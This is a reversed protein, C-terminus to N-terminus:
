LLTQVKALALIMPTGASLSSVRLSATEAREYLAFNLYVKPFEKYNLINTNHFPYYKRFVMDTYLISTIKFLMNITSESVYLCRFM